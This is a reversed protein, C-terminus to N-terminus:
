LNPFQPVATLVHRNLAYDSLTWFVGKGWVVELVPEERGEDDEQPQYLSHRYCNHDPSSM